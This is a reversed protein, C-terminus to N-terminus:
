HTACQHATSKRELNSRLLQEDLSFGLHASPKYENAMKYPLMQLVNHSATDWSSVQTKREYVCLGENLGASLCRSLNMGM